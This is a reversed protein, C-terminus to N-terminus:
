TAMRFLHFNRFGLSQCIDTTPIGPELTVSLGFVSVDPPLRGRLFQGIYSYPQRYSVWERVLHGEEVGVFVLNEQSTLADFIKRWTPSKLHEPDICVIGYLCSAIEEPLDRHTSAAAIITERDYAVASINYKALTDVINRGLGKTPTIVVGVLNKCSRRFKPLSDPSKNLAVHCIIPVIFLVSKGDGTATCLFVDQGDLIRLIPQIQRERLGDKWAPIESSVIAKLVTHGEPSM